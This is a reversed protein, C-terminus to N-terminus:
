LLVTRPYRLLGLQLHCQSYLDARRVKSWRAMRQVLVWTQALVLPETQVSRRERWHALGLHNLIKALTVTLYIRGTSPNVRLLLELCKQWWM